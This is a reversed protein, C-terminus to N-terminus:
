YKRRQFAATSVFFLMVDIALLVGSIILLNNINLPIGTPGIFGFVESDVQLALNDVVTLDGFKETFSDTEIM